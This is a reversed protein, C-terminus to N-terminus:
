PNFMDPTFYGLISRAMEIGSKAEQNGPDIELVTYYDNMADGWRQMKYKIRARLLLAETNEKEQEICRNVIELSGNLDNQEFLARAETLLNNM